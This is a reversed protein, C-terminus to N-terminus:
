GTRVSASRHPSIAPRSKIGHSQYLSRQQNKGDNESNAGSDQKEDYGALDLLSHIGHQPLRRIRCGLARYLEVPFQVDRVHV